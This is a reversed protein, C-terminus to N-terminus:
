DLLQTDSFVFFMSPSPYHNERPPHTASYQPLSFHHQSPTYQQHPPSFTVLLISLHSYSYHYGVNSFRISKEDKSHKVPAKIIFSHLAVLNKSTVSGSYMEVQLKASSYGRSWSQYDPLCFGLLNARTLCFLVRDFLSSALFQEALYM